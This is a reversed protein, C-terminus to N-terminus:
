KKEVFNGSDDLEYLVGAKIGNEGEYGVSVRYRKEDEVWRSLVICGNKGAMASCNVSAAMAISSDGSAALRSGDGSAALKSGEGSAALKSSYGSAALEKTTCANRIWKVANSIFEPLQLESEVTLSASAIKSDNKHRSISGSAKVAAFRNPHGDDSVLPYYNLVDLPNECSHFGSECAKVPGKHLYTKGVEFQYERCQFNKDFGKYATVFEAEGTKKKRQTKKEETM